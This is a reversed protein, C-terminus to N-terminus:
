SGGAPSIKNTDSTGTYHRARLPSVGGPLPTNFSHSNEYALNNYSNGNFNNLKDRWSQSFNLPVLNIFDEIQQKTINESTLWNKVDETKLNM